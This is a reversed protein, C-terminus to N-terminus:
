ERWFREVRKQNVRWGAARLLVTIRRYGYRGYKTALRAIDERLAKEDDPKQPIYRQL